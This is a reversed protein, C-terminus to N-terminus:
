FIIEPFIRESTWLDMEYFKFSMKSKKQCKFHETQGMEFALKGLTISLLKNILYSISFAPMPMKVGANPM